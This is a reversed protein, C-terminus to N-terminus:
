GLRNSNTVAKTLLLAGDPLIMQTTTAPVPPSLIGGLQFGRRTALGLRRPSSRLLLCLTAEVGKLPMESTTTESTKAMIVVDRLASVWYATELAPPDAVDGTSTKDTV